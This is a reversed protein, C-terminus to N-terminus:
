RCRRQRDRGRAAGPPACNPSPAPTFPRDAFTRREIRLAPNGGDEILRVTDFGMNFIRQDGARSEAIAMRDGEDGAVGSRAYLPKDILAHQKVGLDLGISFLAVMESAFPPVAMSANKVGGVSGAFRYLCRQDIFGKSM